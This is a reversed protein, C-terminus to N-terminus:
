LAPGLHGPTHPPAGGLFRQGQGQKINEHESSMEAPSM